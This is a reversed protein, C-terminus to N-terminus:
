DGVAAHEVLQACFDPFTMGARAAAEPLLSTATCGPATNIELIYAEGEDTVRFDVRVAGRCRTVAYAQEAIRQVKQTLESPEPYVHQSGGVAYKAQFDYWGGPAQIEIVPLAQGNVVGVAWERGPIYVEALAEQRSDQACALRIAEPWQSAETVKSLGVSSGDQPPKVVAPLPLPCPLDAAALPVTVGSPTQIGAQALVEKTAVKNMCLASTWAGPGTYPIQRVDLDRQIGGNEGYGGHLAIFVADVGEPLEALSESTLRVPLVNYGACRLAQTVAEGSRLSIEAEHSLGGMVVAVQQRM